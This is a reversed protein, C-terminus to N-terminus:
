GDHAGTPLSFYFTAGKGPEGEAWVRGGHRGVVRQVIALGVGTGPFEEASHLRQFVGFLKDYYQMDFGAGNDRVCYVADGGNLHGSVEVVPAECKSSFKIANSLLNVWAQRILVPDCWAPPLPNLMVRPQLTGQAQQLNQLVEAALTAMDVQAASLPKRGLRSFDLLDDILRGMKRSNDRIVELLRRGEDDLKAAYDEQLMQSFGDIARLPSRLDHSVSYSFSELERNASELQVARQELDGHLRRIEEVALKRQIVPGLQAGLISILQLTQDDRTGHGTDFFEIVAIVGGESLVPYAIWSSFGAELIMARRVYRPDPALDWAWAPQRSQWVGGVLINDATISLTKNRERFQRLEPAKSYWAESVGLSQGDANPLWAQGYTWGTFECIRRLVVTLAATTDEAESTELMATQLFHMQRENRKRETIDFLTARSMLYEGNEGYITSANLAVSLVAGDRRVLDYEVDDIRGAERFRPFTEAFRAASEPTMLESFKKGGVIEERAYGLWALETDNVRVMVGDKDLSHYGCPAHNYLDEIEAARQQAMRQAEVRRANERRLAIFAFLITILAAVNGFMILRLTAEAGASARAARQELLRQEEQKIEAALVRIEDMYSKGRGSRVQEAGKADSERKAEIVSELENLRSLAYSEFLHLREQQAPNDAVRRHLLRLEGHIENLARVYPDLYREEGTIVYGRTGTEADKLLSVTEELHTLVIHTSEVWRAEELQRQLGQYAALGIFALAVVAAPLGWTMLLGTTARLGSRREASKMSAGDRLPM